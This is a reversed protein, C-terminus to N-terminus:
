NEGRSVLAEYQPRYNVFFRASVDLVSEALVGDFEADDSVGHEELFDLDTLPLYFVIDLTQFDYTNSIVTIKKFWKKIMM